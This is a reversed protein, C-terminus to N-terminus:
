YERAIDVVNTLTLSPPVWDLPLLYDVGAGLVQVWKLKPATERLRERPFRYGILADVERM